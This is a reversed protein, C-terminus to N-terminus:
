VVEIQDTKIQEVDREYVRIGKTEGIRFAKLKGSKIMDYVHNKSCNLMNKVQSVTLVKSNRQNASGKGQNEGYRVYVGSHAM